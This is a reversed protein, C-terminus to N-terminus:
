DSPAARFIERGARIRTQELLERQAEGRAILGEIDLSRLADHSDRVEALMRWLALKGSVGLMLSELAMFTGLSPDGSTLGSFKVRSGKEALWTTAQKVPNRSAGLQEMLDILQQRDQEIEKALPELESAWRKAEDSTGLQEALDSGLMAGALHDNLYVDLSDGAM